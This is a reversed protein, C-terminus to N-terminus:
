RKLDLESQLASALIRYEDARNYAHASVRVLRRPPAPWPVIPVEVHHREYLAIQLADLYLASQPPERGGDPLPLAALLGLMEDPVPPECALAECLRDRGARLVAGCRQRLEDWGGLEREVFRLAEPVCLVATPDATGTWDFTELYRSRARRSNYGHSIVAPMLGHQRDRRVWLLAAGKPACVWKHLNGTYYAAGLQALRLPLMGPGHAGDVLTDVGRDALERVLRAIPLVIGTPSTVHDLIALRTGESVQAVVADVVEQESALPFPIEAVSLEAGSRECVWRACNNIANYGHNTVLIREGPAFRLSRLVGNVAETANRVFVLDDPDSGVFDAVVGRVEALLPELERVFFRVPEREMQARYRDQAQLVVTPCAGFSGHNLFALDPELTWHHRM